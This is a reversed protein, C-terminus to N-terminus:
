LRPCGRCAAPPAGALLGQRLARLAPGNWVQQFAPHLLSGAPNGPQCDCCTLTGDAGVAATQWPSLCHRHRDARDWLREAPRLLYERLRFPKGLEELGRVSLAPLGAALARELSRAVTERVGAPAARLSRARNAAFNLDSLMWARAGLGLALDAVGDLHEANETSVATFVALAVRGRWREAAERFAGLTRQFPVGPRLREALAPDAADVSFTAQALGADALAEALPATLAAGSTVLGVWRGQRAAMAVCAALDPHLTPEGLGVLTIRAAEPLRDLVQAFTALTMDGRDPRDQTRACAVCRHPCRTTLEVNALAPPPAWPGLEPLAGPQLARRVSPTRGAAHWGGPRAEAYAAVGPELLAIRALEAATLADGPLLADVIAAVLADWAAPSTLHHGEGPLILVERGWSALDEPPVLDDAGGHALVLPVQPLGAAGARNLTHVLRCADLLTPPDMRGHTAALFRPLHELGVRPPVGLLVLLDPRLQAQALLALSGGTSHGVLAWPGPGEAAAAVAALFAAEDFPPPSGTGTWAPHLAAFRACGAGFVGELAEALPALDAPAGLYGHVLVFRM